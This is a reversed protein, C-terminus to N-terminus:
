TAPEAMRLTLRITKGALQQLSVAGGPRRQRQGDSAVKWNKDAAECDLRRAEARGAATWHCIGRYEKEGKAPFGPVGNKQRPSMDSRIAIAGGSTTVRQGHNEGYFGDVALSVDSLRMQCGPLSYSLAIEFSFPQARDGPRTDHHLTAPPYNCSQAPGAPAYQASARLAIRAPMEGTLTFSSTDHLQGLRPTSQSAATAISCLVAFVACAPLFWPRQVISRNQSFM